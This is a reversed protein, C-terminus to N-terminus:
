RYTGEQHGKLNTLYLFQGKDTLGKIIEIPCSHIDKFSLIQTVRFVPKKIQGKLVKKISLEVLCLM